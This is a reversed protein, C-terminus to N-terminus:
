RVESALANPYHLDLATRVREIVAVRQNALNTISISPVLTNSEM